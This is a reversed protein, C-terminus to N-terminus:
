IVNGRLDRRLKSLQKNYLNSTSIKRRIELVPMTAKKIDSLDVGPKRLRGLQLSPGGGRPVLAQAAAMRTSPVELRSAQSPATMLKGVPAKMGLSKGAAIMPQRPSLLAGANTNTSYVEKSPGFTSKPARFLDLGASNVGIGKPLAGSGKRSAATIIGTMVDNTIFEAPKLIPAFKQKRQASRMENLLMQQGIEQSQQTSTKVRLELPTLNYDFAVEEYHGQRKTIPDYDVWIKKTGHSMPDVGAAEAQARAEASSKYTADKAKQKKDWDSFYDSSRQKAGEYEIWKVNDPYMAWFEDFTQRNQKSPDNANAANYAAQQQQFSASMTSYMQPDNLLPDGTQTSSGGNGGFGFAM